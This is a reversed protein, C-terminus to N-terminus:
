TDDRYRRIRIAAFVLLAAVVLGLWLDVNVFAKSMPINDFLDALSVVQGHGMEPTIPQELLADWIGTWSRYKLLDATYRTGFAAREVIIAIV